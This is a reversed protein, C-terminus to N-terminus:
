RMENLIKKPKITSIMRPYSINLVKNPFLNDSQYYLSIETYRIQLKEEFFKWVFHVSDFNM